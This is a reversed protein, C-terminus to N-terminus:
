VDQHVRGQASPNDTHSFYVISRYPAPEKLPSNEKPAGRAVSFQNSNGGSVMGNRTNNAHQVNPPQSKKYQSSPPRREEHFNFEEAQTSKLYRNSLRSGSTPVDTQEGTSYAPLATNSSGKKPGAIYRSLDFDDVNIAQNEPKDVPRARQHPQSVVPAVHNIDHNGNVAPKSATTRIREEPATTDPYESPPPIGSGGYGSAPTPPAHASGKYGLAYTKPQSHVPPRDDLDLDTFTDDWAPKRSASKSKRRRGQNDKRLLAMFAEDAEEQTERSYKTGGATANRQQPQYENPPRTAQEASSPPHRASPFPGQAPSHNVRTQKPTGVSSEGRMLRDMSRASTKRTPQKPAEHKVEDLGRMPFMAPDSTPGM